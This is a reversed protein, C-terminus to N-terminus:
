NKVLDYLESINYLNGNELNPIYKLNDVPMVFESNDNTKIYACIASNYGISFDIYCIKSTNIDIGKNKLIEFIESEDIFRVNNDDPIVLFRTIAESNEINM